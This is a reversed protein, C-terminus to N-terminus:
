LYMWRVFEYMGEHLESTGESYEQGKLDGGNEFLDIGLRAAHAIVALSDDKKAMQCATVSLERLVYHVTGHNVKLDPKVAEWGEIDYNIVFDTVTSDLADLVQLRETYESYTTNMITLASRTTLIQRVHCFVKMIAFLQEIVNESVPADEAKIDKDSSASQSRTQRM